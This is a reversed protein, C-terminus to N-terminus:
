GVQPSRDQGNKQTAEMTCVIQIRAADRSAIGTKLDWYAYKGNEDRRLVAYGWNISTTGQAIVGIINGVDDAFWEVEVGIFKGIAGRHPLFQDLDRRSIGKIAM